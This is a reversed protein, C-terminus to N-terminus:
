YIGPLSYIITVLPLVVEVAPALALLDGEVEVELDDVVELEGELEDDELLPLVVEVAPVVADRLGVVVDVIALTAVVVAVGIVVTDSIDLPWSLNVSGLTNLPKIVFGNESIPCAM